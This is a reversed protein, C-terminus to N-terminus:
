NDRKARENQLMDMFADAIIGSPLAIIGVGILAILGTIIKGIVTYISRLIWGFHKTDTASEAYNIM